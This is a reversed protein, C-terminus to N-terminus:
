LPLRTSTVPPELPMPAPMAETLADTLWARFPDTAAFRAALTTGRKVLVDRLEPLVQAAAFLENATTEKEREWGAHIQTCIADRIAERGVNHALTRTAWSEIVEVGPDDSCEYLAAVPLELARAIVQHIM